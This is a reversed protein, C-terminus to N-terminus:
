YLDIKKVNTFLKNNIYLFSVNSETFESERRKNANFNRKKLKIKSFPQASAPSGNFCLSFPKFIIKFKKNKIKAYILSDFNKGKQTM